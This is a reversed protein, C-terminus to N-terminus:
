CGHCVVRGGAFLCRQKSMFTIPWRGLRRGEPKADLIPYVSVEDEDAQGNGDNHQRNEEDCKGKADASGVQVMSVGRMM